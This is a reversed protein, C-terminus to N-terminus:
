NTQVTNIGGLMQKLTDQRESNSQVIDFTGVARQADFYAQLFTYDAAPSAIGAAFAVNQADVLETM